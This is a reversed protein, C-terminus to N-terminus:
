KILFLIKQKNFAVKKKRIIIKKLNSSTIKQKKEEQLPSQNDFMQQAYM